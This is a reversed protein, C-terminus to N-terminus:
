CTKRALMRTRRAPRRPSLALWPANALAKGRRTKRRWPWTGFLTSATQPNTARNKWSTRWLSWMNAAQSPRLLHQGGRTRRKRGLETSSGTQPPLTTQTKMYEYLQPVHGTSYAIKKKCGCRTCEGKREQAGPDPRGDAAQGGTPRRCVDLPQRRRRQRRGM